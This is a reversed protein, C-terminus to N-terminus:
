SNAQLHNLSRFCTALNITNIVLIHQTKVSCIAKDNCTRLGSELRESCKSFNRCMIGPVESMKNDTKRCTWLMRDVSHWRTSRREIELVWKKRITM